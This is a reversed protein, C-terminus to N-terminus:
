QKSGKEYEFGLIGLMILFLILLVLAFFPTAVLFYSMAVAVGEPFENKYNPAVWEFITKFLVVCVLPLLKEVIFEWSAVKLGKRVWRYYDFVAM